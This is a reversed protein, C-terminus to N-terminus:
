TLIENVVRGHVDTLRFDRGQFRYTLRTHDIGLQHLITAQLDHVHVPDRVINYSYDDTEGFTLGGKVGGGAMWLSFCRPHHDRGYTTDTIAGQCYVTRGFEGSWIVLTEDLLGRQKLDQVLAASPQDTRATLGKLSEANKSHTDWPQGALFLQVFRVGREILRRAILCRTAYEQTAPNDLGYMKQTAETEQSLDLVEPVAVQMRAATEFNAIRAALENNEPHRQM